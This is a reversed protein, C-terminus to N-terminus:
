FKNKLDRLKQMTAIPDNLTGLKEQIGVNDVRMFPNFTKEEGITSPVTFENTKRLNKAWELKAKINPNDPEVSLAFELNKVTYEHGCYVKTDDPLKGLKENLAYNMEQATGEFFRGCGGIFLTDGTFVCRQDEEEDIVYYCIHTSTHCPTKLARIKLSGYQIEENDDVVLDISEIRNADGGYIMVNKKRSKLEATGAAHDWHHHTVLAMFLDVFEEKIVNFFGNIDVPDVIAAKNSDEDIILYQYNDANAPIPIVRMTRRSNLTTLSSAFKKFISYRQFFM